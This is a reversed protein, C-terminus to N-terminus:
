ARGAIRGTASGSTVDRHQFRPLIATKFRCCRRKCGARGKAADPITMTDHASPTAGPSAATRVFTRTM